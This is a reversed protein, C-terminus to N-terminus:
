LQGCKKESPKKLKIFLVGPLRETDSLSKYATVALGVVGVGLKRGCFKCLFAHIEPWIGKHIANQTSTM